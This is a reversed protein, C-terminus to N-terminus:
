LVVIPHLQLHHLTSSPLRQAVQLLEFKLISSLKTLVVAKTANFYTISPLNKYLSPVNIFILQQANKVNM